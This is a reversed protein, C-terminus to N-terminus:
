KRENVTELLYLGYQPSCFTDNLLVDKGRFDPYEMRSVDRGKLKCLKIFRERGSTMRVAKFQILRWNSDLSDAHNMLRYILEDVDSYSIKSTHPYGKDTNPIFAKMFREVDDDFDKVRLVQEDATKTWPVESSPTDSITCYSIEYVQEDEPTSDDGKAEVMKAKNLAGVLPYYISTDGIHTRLAKIINEMKTSPSLHAHHRWRYYSVVGMERVKAIMVNQDTHYLSINAITGSLSATFPFEITLGNGEYHKTDVAIRELAYGLEDDLEEAIASYEFHYKTPHAM